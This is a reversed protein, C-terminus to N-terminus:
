PPLTFVNVAHRGSQVTAAPKVDGSSGPRMAPRCIYSHRVRPAHLVSQKVSAVLSAPGAVGSAGASAGGLAASPPSAPAPAHVSGESRAIAPSLMFVPSAALEQPSM